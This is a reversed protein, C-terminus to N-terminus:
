LQKFPEHRWIQIHNEFSNLQKWCILCFFPGQDLIHHSKTLIIHNSLNLFFLLDGWTFHDLGSSQICKAQIMHTAHDLFSLCDELQM